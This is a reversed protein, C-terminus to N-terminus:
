TVKLRFLPWLSDWHKHMRVSKSTSTAVASSSLRSPIKSSLSDSSGDYIHWQVAAPATLSLNAFRQNDAGIFICIRELNTTERTTTSEAEIPPFLELLLEKPELIESLQKKLQEGYVHQYGIDLYVCVQRDISEARLGQLKSLLVNVDLPLEPYLYLVPLRAARSRCANGFHIVSDADVHAAAIEDM